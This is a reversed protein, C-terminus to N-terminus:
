PLHGPEHHQRLGGAPHASPGTDTQGATRNGPHSKGPPLCPSSSRKWRMSQQLRPIDSRKGIIPFGALIRGQKRPDDDIYGAV